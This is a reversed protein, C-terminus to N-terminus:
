YAITLESSTSVQFGPLLLETLLNAKIILSFPVGTGLHEEQSWHPNIIFNYNADKIEPRKNLEVNTLPGTNVHISTPAFRTNMMM